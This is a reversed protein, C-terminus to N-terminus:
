SYKSAYESIEECLRNSIDELFLSFSHLNFIELDDDLKIKLFDINEKLKLADVLDDNFNLIDILYLVDLDYMNVLKYNLKTYESYISKNEFISTNKINEPIYEELYYKDLLLHVYYGLNIMNKFDLRKKFYDTDPILLNKGKIKHHSDKINVVDPLINGRIFEENYINLKEGVLKSVVMHAAISPM